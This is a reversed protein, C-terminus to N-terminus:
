LRHSLSLRPSPPRQHSPYVSLLSVSPVPSLLLFSCLPVPLAFPPPLPCSPHPFLPYAAHLPRRSLVLTSVLPSLRNPHPRTVTHLRIRARLIRYYARYPLPAPSFLARIHANTASTAPLALRPMCVATYRVLNLASDRILDALAFCPYRPPHTALPYPERPQRPPRPSRFRSVPAFIPSFGCESGVLRLVDGALGGRGVYERARSPTCSTSRVLEGISRQRGRRWGRSDRRFTPPLPADAVYTSANQAALSIYRPFEPTKRSLNRSLPNNAQCITCRTRAALLFM